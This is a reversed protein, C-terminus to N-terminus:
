VTARGDVRGKKEEQYFHHALTNIQVCGYEKFAKDSKDPISTPDFIKFPSLVPLSELFQNKINEKLSDVYKTTLNRLYNEGSATLTIDMNILRGDKGLDKKLKELPKQAAAIEVLQDTTYKIAPNIASFSINGRQFARSLHLLAPLVEHLLYVTSLFKINAVAKLLGSATCDSEETYVQLTQTLPVFDQFVGDVM